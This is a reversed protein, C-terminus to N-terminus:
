GLKESVKDWVKKAIEEISEQGDLIVWRKKDKNAVKLYAKCVKKQLGVGEREIRDLEGSRMRREMGVEAPLDLLFTIDPYTNETAFDSLNEIRKAGVGRVMGQYILSSDRTRDMLVMKGNKLGPLVIEHYLQARAAQFLLVETTTAMKTNKPGLVVERIQEAIDVGGPERIVKTKKGEKEFREALLNCQTTKGAGEMGEFSILIGQTKM